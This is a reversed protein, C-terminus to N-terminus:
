PNNCARSDENAITKIFEPSISPNVDNSRVKNQYAKKYTVRTNAVHLETMFSNPEHVLEERKEGDHQNDESTRAPDM